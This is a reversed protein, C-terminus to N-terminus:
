LGYRRWIMVFMGALLTTIAFIVLPALFATTAIFHARAAEEFLRDIKSVAFGSVFGGFVKAYKTFDTTEEESLPSCVTGVTWGVVVGGLNGLLSWCRDIWTAGLLAGACLLGLEVIVTVWVAVRAYAGKSEDEEM